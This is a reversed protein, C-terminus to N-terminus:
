PKTKLKDPDPASHQRGPGQVREVLARLDPPLAAADLQDLSPPGAEPTEAAKAEKGAAEAAQSEAVVERLQSPLSDLDISAAPKAAPKPAAEPPASKPAQRGGGPVWKEAKKGDMTWFERDDPPPEVLPPNLRYADALAAVEIEVNAEDEDLCERFALDRRVLALLEDATQGGYRAWLGDLFVMIESKLPSAKLKPLPGDFVHFVSPELPGLESALFTAPMLKCGENAAAYHAQALYLLRQLKQASLRVEASAGRALLWLVVDFTSRVAPSRM